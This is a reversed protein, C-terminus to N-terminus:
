GQGSLNASDVWAFLYGSRRPVKDMDIGTQVAGGYNRLEPASRFDSRIQNHVARLACLRCVNRCSKSDAAANIASTSYTDGLRSRTSSGAYISKRSKDRLGDVQVFEVIRSSSTKFIKVIYIIVSTSSSNQQLLRVAARPLRSIQQDQRHFTEQDQRHFIQQDQRHFIQLIGGPYCFGTAAIGVTPAL